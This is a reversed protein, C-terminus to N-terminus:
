ARYQNILAPVVVGVGILVALRIASSDTVSTSAYWLVVGIVAFVTVTLSDTSVM